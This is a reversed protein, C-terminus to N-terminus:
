FSILCRNRCKEENLETSGDWMQLTRVEVLLKWVLLECYYCIVGSLWQLATPVWQGIQACANRKMLYVIGYYEKEKKEKHHGTQWIVQQSIYLFLHSQDLSQSNNTLLYRLLPWLNAEANSTAKDCTALDQKFSLFSLFFFLMKFEFPLSIEWTLHKKRVWM